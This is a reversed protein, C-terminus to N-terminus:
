LINLDPNLFKDRSCPALWSHYFTLLSLNLINFEPNPFKDHSCSAAVGTLPPLLLPLSLSKHLPLLHQLAYLRANKSSKICIDRIEIINIGKVM